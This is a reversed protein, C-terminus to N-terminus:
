FSSIKAYKPIKLIVLLNVVELFIFILMFILIKDLFSRVQYSLGPYSVDLWEIAAFLLLYTLLNIALDIRVMKYIQKM